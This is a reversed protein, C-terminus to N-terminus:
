NRTSLWTAIPDRLGRSTAYKALLVASFWACIVVAFRTVTNVQINLFAGGSLMLMLSLSLYMALTHKGAPALWFVWNPLQQTKYWYRMGLAVTSAILWINVPTSFTGLISLKSLKGNSQVYAMAVSIILNLLLAIIFHWSNLEKNWFKRAYSRTSFLNFRRVLIGAVTIWLYLPLNFIGSLSSIIYEKMNFMLFAQVANLNVFNKFGNKIYDAEVKEGDLWMGISGIAFFLLMVANLITLMKFKSLLSKPRIKIWRVAVLGCIAYITLVDGFYVFVGHLVGILLLKKHRQKIRHKVVQLNFNTQYAISCLSYGFLFCLLPYAKGQAFAALFGNIWIAVTSDIPITAGLPMPYNPMSPYGMANVLFVGLLALARLADVWPERITVPWTLRM